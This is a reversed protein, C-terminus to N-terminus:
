VNAQANMQVNSTNANERESTHANAHKSTHGNAREMINANACENMQLLMKVSTIQVNILM